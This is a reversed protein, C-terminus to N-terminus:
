RLGPAYLVNVRLRRVFTRCSACSRYRARSFATACPASARFAGAWEERPSSGIIRLSSQSGFRLWQVVTVPTNDKGSVADIRTEFGAPGDIRVPESM